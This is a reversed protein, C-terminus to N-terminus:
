NYLYKLVSYCSGFQLIYKWCNVKYLNKGSSIYLDRLNKDQYIKTVYKYFDKMKFNEKSKIIVFMELPTIMTTVILGTLYSCIVQFELGLKGVKQNVLKEECYLYYVRSLTENSKVSEELISLNRNKFDNEKKLEDKTLYSLLQNYFMDYIKMMLLISLFNELLVLSYNRKIDNILFRFKDATSDKRYIFIFTEKFLQYQTNFFNNIYNTQILAPIQSCFISLFLTKLLSLYGRDTQNYYNFLALFGTSYILSNIGILKYSFNIKSLNKYLRSENTFKSKNLIIYNFIYKFEKGVVNANKIESKVISLFNFLNLGFLGVFFYNNQRIKENFNCALKTIRAKVTSRKSQTKRFFYSNSNENLQINIPNYPNNPLLAKYYYYDLLLHFQTSKLCNPTKKAQITEVGIMFIFLYYILYNNNIIIIYGM